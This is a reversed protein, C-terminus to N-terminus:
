VIRFDRAAAIANEWGLAEGGMIGYVFCEGVLSYVGPEGGPRLLFPTEGGHLVAVVDGTEANWPALGIYGRKTVLLRRHACATYIRQAYAMYEAPGRSALERIAKFSRLPNRTAGAQEMLATMHQVWATSERLASQLYSSSSDRSSISSTWGVRDCWSEVYTLLRDYPVSGRECTFDAIYTRLLAEKRAEPNMESGYPCFPRESFTLEEWQELTGIGNRSVPPANTIDTSPHWPIGLGSIEDFRIGGIILQRPDGTHEGLSAKLLRAARYRSPAYSTPDAWDLLPAPDRTTVAAWNPVWSPLDAMDHLSHDHRWERVCNLIELSGTGRILKRVLDTYVKATTCSNGYCPKMGVNILLPLLSLLAYIRDRPDACGLSRCQHLLAYANPDLTKTAMKQRFGDVFPSINGAITNMPTDKFSEWAIDKGSPRMIVLRKAHIAEHLPWVRNWWSGASFEMSESAGLWVCVQAAQQYILPMIHVQKAKLDTDEQDICLADIWVNKPKSSTSRRRVQRLAAAASEPVHVPAGDVLIVESKRPDAGRTYSIADYEPPSTIFFKQLQCSIPSSNDGAEAPHLTLLWLRKGFFSAIVYPWQSSM